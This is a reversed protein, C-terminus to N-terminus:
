SIEGRNKYRGVPGDDATLFASRRCWPSTAPLIKAFADFEKHTFLENVRFIPDSAMMKNLVEDNPFVFLDAPPPKTRPPSPERSSGTM